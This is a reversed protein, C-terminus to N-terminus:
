ARAATQLIAAGRRTSGTTPKRKLLSSTLRKSSNAVICSISHHGTLWPGQQPFLFQIDMSKTLKARDLASARAICGSDALSHLKATGPYSAESGASFISYVQANHAVSCPTQVVSNVNQLQGPALAPFDFCDGAVLTFPDVTQSVSPSASPPSAAPPTSHSTVLVTILAAGLAVWASGLVVSAIALGRGKQGTTRVQRLAVIGLVLGIIALPVFILGVLALVFAAIAM